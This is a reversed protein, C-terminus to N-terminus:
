YGATLNKKKNANYAKLYSDTVVKGGKSKWAKVYEDFKAITKDKMVFNIFSEVEFKRLDATYTNSEETTIGEFLNDYLPSEMAVKIAEANLPNRKMNADNVVLPSLVLQSMIGSWKEEQAKIGEPLDKVFAGTSSAEYHTGPIGFSALHTGEPSHLFDILKIAEIPNKCSTTISNTNVVLNQAAYGVQGNKGVIGGVLYTWKSGPVLQDMKKQQLLGQPVISWWSVFCGTKGQVLKQTAQDTKALFIDPDVLKEEFMQRIFTLAAKYEPSIVAPVVKNDKVLYTSPPQIGFAGFIPGFATFPNEGAAGGDSGFGYTDNKGNGDPDNKTFKRMVNLFEDLTKPQGLGLKKLWDERLNTVYKGRINTNPIAYLKGQYKAAELVAAPIDKKINPGYKEVLETLDIFAGQDVYQNATYGGLNIIDPMDGSAVALNVKNALQDGPVLILNIQTNTKKEIAGIFPDGDKLIRGYNNSLWTIKVPEAFGLAGLLFCFVMLTTTRRLKM